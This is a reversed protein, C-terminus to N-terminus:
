RLTRFIPLTGLERGIAKFRAVWEGVTVTPKMTEEGKCTHTKYIMAMALVVSFHSTTSPDLLKKSTVFFLLRGISRRRRKQILNTEFAWIDLM